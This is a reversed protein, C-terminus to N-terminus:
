IDANICHDSSPLVPLASVTEVANRRIYIVRYYYHESRIEDSSPKLRARLVVIAIIIAIIIVVVISVSIAVTLGVNKGESSDNTPQTPILSPEPTPIPTPVSITTNIDDIYWSLVSKAHLYYFVGVTLLDKM